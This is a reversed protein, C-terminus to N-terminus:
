LNKAVSQVRNPLANIFPNTPATFHFTQPGRRGAPRGEFGLRNWLEAWALYSYVGHGAKMKLNLNASYNHTDTIRNKAVAIMTGPM